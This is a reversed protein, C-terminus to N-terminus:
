LFSDIVRVREDKDRELRVEQSYCYSSMELSSIISQSVSLNVRKVNTPVIDM